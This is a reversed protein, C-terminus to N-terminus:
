KLEIHADSIYPVVKGVHPNLNCGIMEPTIDFLYTTKSGEIDIIGESDITVIASLPEKYFASHITGNASKNAEVFDKPFLDHTKLTWGGNYVCNVNFYVINDVVEVSDTHYHGNMCMLVRKPHKENVKRLIERAKYGDRADAGKFSVHSLIICPYPSSLLTEELWSLQEEGLMQHDYSWDPGGVSYGPYRQLKGDMEFYCTDTIVFRFGKLDIYYYSNDIGYAANLEEISATNELEHNGYCGFAPVGLENKLFMDLAFKYHKIDTIFDGCHVMADVNNEKARSIITKLGEETTPYTLNLHYDACVSLKIKM